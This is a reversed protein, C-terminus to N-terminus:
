ATRRYETWLWIVSPRAPLPWWHQPSSRGPCFPLPGASDPDWCVQSPRQMWQVQPYFYKAKLQAGLCSVPHTVPFAARHSFLPDVLPKLGCYPKQLPQLTVSVTYFLDCEMQFAPLLSLLPPAQQFATWHRRGGSPRLTGKHDNIHYVWGGMGEGLSEWKTVSIRQKWLM